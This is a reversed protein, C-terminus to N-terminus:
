GRSLRAHRPPACGGQRVHEHQAASRCRSRNTALKALLDSILEPHYFHGQLAARLKSPAPDLDPLLVRQQWPGEPRRSAVYDAFPNRALVDECAGHAQAYIQPHFGPAPRRFYPNAAAGPACGVNGWQVLFSAIADKRSMLSMEGRLHFGEDFTPDAAIVAADDRRLRMARAGSDGLRDIEACYTDMNFSALAIARVAEGLSARKADDRLSAIGHRGSGRCRCLRRGAGRHGRGCGPYGGHGDGSRFLIVPKGRLAADISVNPLPDLRSSLFFIDAADYAPELDAVEDIIDVFDRVGSRSIQEDLYVSYPTDLLPDYGHGIWVFRFDLDPHEAHLAAAAAIFLDVGKRLHISGCGLVLLTEEREKLRLPRAPKADDAEDSAADDGPIECPGQPLLRTAKLKLWPHFERASALVVEAPFVLEQSMDMAEIMTSIPRTYCAFEHMLTVTAVHQRSLAPIFNRCEISNVVVYKLAVQETLQEVLYSMEVADLDAFSLPGVVGARKKM